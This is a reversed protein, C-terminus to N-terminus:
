GGVPHLLHSKEVLYTGDTLFRSPDFALIDMGLGRSSTVGVIAGSPVALGNGFAATPRLFSENSNFTKRRDTYLWGLTINDILGGDFEWYAEARLQHLEDEIIPQKIFGAQGWSGPDTLPVNAPKTYDLQSDISYTGDRPFTFTLRDQAGSRATRTRTSIPASSAIATM